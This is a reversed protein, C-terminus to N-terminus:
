QTIEMQTGLFIPINGTRDVIMYVFPRDLIVEKPDPIFASGCLIEVVTAAGATTGQEAVTIRTKHLIRSIHLNGERCTGMGSFDALEQHFAAEMGMAQLVESLETSYQTDFKPIATYVTTDTPHSLMEQLAAGSLSAVYDGVSVGEKPLLAVFAFRGDKYPKIFGSALDDEIYLTEQSYMLEVPQTKGDERTFTGEQVSTQQYAEPWQDEFALANVLYMMADSPIEDLIEPIMGDTQESVWRNIARCTDQNMAAEYIQADLYSKNVQLFNKDPQLAGSSNFWISNALKLQRPQSGGYNCLYSNLEGLPIGLVQEMQALTEGRAGNATMALASMVSMPALLTNEGERATNRFLKVAFDTMATDNFADLVAAEEATLDAMLDRYEQAEAIEQSLAQNSDEEPSVEPMAPMEEMSADMQEQGFMAAPAQPECSQGAKEATGGRGTELFVLTCGIMLALCAAMSVWKKWQLIRQRPATRRRDTETVLDQPLMGLADHFQEANM